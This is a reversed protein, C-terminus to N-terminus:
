DSNKQNLYESKFREREEDNCFDKLWGDVARELLYGLNGHAGIEKSAFRMLQAVKKIIKQESNRIEKFETNWFTKNYSQKKM